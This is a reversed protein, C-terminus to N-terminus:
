LITNLYIMLALGTFYLGAIILTCILESKAGEHLDKSTQKM